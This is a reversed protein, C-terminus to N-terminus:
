WARWRRPACRSSSSACTARRPARAARAATSAPCTSTATPRATKAGVPRVLTGRAYAEEIVVVDRTITVNDEEGSAKRVRLTVTTGKPRPDDEGGRRHAHRRRRGAGAPTAVSLITDGPVLKGQRWSAGGPVLEVIEIYHDRERLVAGIGELSGTMAIDFNAKDAPPLYSTHPDFANGVANVLTAAPGLKEPARLRAFRGSYARALDARAKAQRAEPTAPIQDLPVPPAASADDDDDDEGPKKDKDKTQGQDQGQGRAAGGDLGRARPGGAGPPAALSRAARRRQGRGPGEGPDLEIHEDDTLDMPAALLESVMKEVVAVREVFLRSGEHALDMRGAHLQDDIRDANRALAADDKKLLFMKSTDLQELYLKYADRSITDDLPRRRLHERELLATV